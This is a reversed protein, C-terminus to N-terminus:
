KWEKYNTIKESENYLDLFIDRIFQSVQWIEFWENESLYNDLEIM